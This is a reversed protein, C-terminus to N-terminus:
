VCDGFVWIIIWRHGAIGKDEINQRPGFQSDMIISSTRTRKKELNFVMSREEPGNFSGNESATTYLDENFSSLSEGHERYLQSYARREESNMSGDLAPMESNMDTELTSSKKKKWVSLSAVRKVKPTLLSDSVDSSSSSTRERKKDDATEPLAGPSGSAHIPSTYDTDHSDDNGDPVNKPSAVCLNPTLMSSSVDSSCSSTRERATTDTTESLARQSGSAHVIINDNTDCSDENDDTVNKQSTLWIIPKIDDDSATDSSINSHREKRIDGSTESTESINQEFVKDADEREKTQAAGLDLKKRTKKRISDTQGPTKKMKKKKNVEKNNEGDLDGKKKKNSKRLSDTQGPKSKRKQKKRVPSTESSDSSLPFCGLGQLDSETCDSHPSHEGESEQNKHKLCLIIYIEKSEDTIYEGGAKPVCLYHYTKKCSKINCGVTAGTKGCLYCVMRKGRKIEKQVSEVDYGGLVDSGQKGSVVAPSYLMCNEHATIKDDPTKLLPGTEQNQERQHCFNCMGLANSKGASM